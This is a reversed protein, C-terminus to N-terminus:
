RGKILIAVENAISHAIICMMIFDTDDFSNISDKTMYILVIIAIFTIM